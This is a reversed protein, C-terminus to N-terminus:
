FFGKDVKFFYHRDLHVRSAKLFWRQLFNFSKWSNKWSGHCTASQVACTIPPTVFLALSPCHLVACAVYPMVCPSLHHATHCLLAPSPCAMVCHLCCIANIPLVVCLVPLPCCSMTTPSMCHSIPHHTVSPAICPCWCWPPAFLTPNTVCPVVWCTPYCLPVVQHQCLAVHCAITACWCPADNLLHLVCHPIHHWHCTTHYYCTSICYITVIYSFM